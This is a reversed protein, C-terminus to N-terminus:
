YRKTTTLIITIHKQMADLEKVFFVFNFIHKGLIDIVSQILWM